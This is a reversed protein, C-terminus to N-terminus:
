FLIFSAPSGLNMALCYIKLWASTRIGTREADRPTDFAVQKGNISIYGSSPAFAGSLIKILTSKGAGNEGALGVVEGANLTLSLSKLAQVGPFRKSIEVLQVQKISSDKTGLM